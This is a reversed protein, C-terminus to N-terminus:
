NGPLPDAEDRLPIQKYRGPDYYNLNDVIQDVNGLDVSRHEGTQTDEVTRYGRIVEDFDDNSRSRIISNREQSKNYDDYAQTIEAHAKQQAAFWQNQQDIKQQTKAQIVAANEKLSSIIALMTPLDNNFTADPAAAGTIGFMMSENSIPDVEIQALVQRHVKQGNETETLGYSVLQAKGTQLIPPAQKILKLHDLEFPPMNKSRLIQNVQPNLTKFVDIPDGFQAILMQPPPPPQAGLQRAQAALMQQTRIATSNPTVASLILGMSVRQQKPGQIIVQGNCTTAQTTWGDPIGISGTGDPFDYRKLQPIQPMSGPAAATLKNWDSSTATSKAYIVALTAGGSQGMKASVLGKVPQGHMMATFSAGGSNHDRVDEYAGAFKPKGDFYHSLDPLAASLAASVSKADTKRTTLAQGADTNTVVKYGDPLQGGPHDAPTDSAGTNSAGPSLPNSPPPPPPPTGGDLPNVAEVQRKLTYTTKGSTFSLTDGDITGSFPFDHGASKFSGTLKTDTASAKAPFKKDGLTLTGGYGDNAATLEITLKGDTFKGAFPSPASPSLPNVGPNDNLPTLPQVPTDTNAIAPTTAGGTIPASMTSQITGNGEIQYTVQQGNPGPGPQEGKTEMTGKMDNSITHGTAMDVVAKGQLIVTTDMGNLNRVIAMSVKVTATPHGNASGVELLKLTMGAHDNPGSLDAVQALVKPDAKWEQGIDVPQQPFIVKESVMASHLESASQPDAQGDFDDSVTGDANKTITITKGAYPYPQKQSQQGMTMSSGCDEGFTLKISTPEGNSVAVVEAKGVHKSEMKMSYPQTQGNVTAKNDMSINQSSDFTWTMGPQMNLRLPVKDAALAADTLILGLLAAAALTLCLNLRPAPPLIRM